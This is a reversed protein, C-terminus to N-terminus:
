VSTLTVPALRLKCATAAVVLTVNFGVTDPVTPTIEPALAVNVLPAAPTIFRVAAM